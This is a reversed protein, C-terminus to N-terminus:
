HLERIADDLGRITLPFMRDAMIERILKTSPTYDWRQEPEPNLWLAKPYANLLRKM